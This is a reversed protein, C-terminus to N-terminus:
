EILSNTKEDYFGKFKITESVIERRNQYYKTGKPIIFIGIKKRSYLFMNDETNDLNRYSHYGSNIYKYSGNWSLLPILEVKKQLKDKKYKFYFQYLCNFYKKGRGVKFVVIDEKAIRIRSNKNQLQFCM